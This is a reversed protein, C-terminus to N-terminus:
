AGGGSTLREHEATLEDEPVLSVVHEAEYAGIGELLCAAGSLALWCVPIDSRRRVVFPVFPASVWISLCGFCDTLQGLLGDGLRARMRAVMDAPGDEAALLHTLRWVALAALSFGVAQDRSTLVKQM